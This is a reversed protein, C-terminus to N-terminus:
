AEAGTIHVLAPLGLVTTSADGAFDDEIVRIADDRNTGNHHPRDPLPGDGVPRQRHTVAECAVFRRRPGDPREITTAGDVALPGVDRGDRGPPAIIFSIQSM